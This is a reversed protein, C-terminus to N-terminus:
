LQSVFAKFEDIVSESKFESSLSEFLHNDSIGRYITKFFLFKDKDNTFIAGIRKVQNTSFCKNKIQNNLEKLKENTTKSEILLATFEKVQLESAISKCNKNTITKEPTNNITNYRNTDAKAETKKNIEKQNDTPIFISLTDNNNKYIIDLGENTKREFIKEIKDLEKYKIISISTDIQNNEQKLEINKEITQITPKEIEELKQSIPKPFNEKTIIDELVLRNGDNLLYFGKDISDIEVEILTSQKKENIIEITKKGSFLKPITCFGNAKLTTLYTENKVYFSNNTKNEIFIFHLNQSNAKLSFLGLLIYTIIRKKM